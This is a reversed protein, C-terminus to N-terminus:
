LEILMTAWTLGGGFGSILIKDGKKLLGKENMEALAIPVSAGSTNGIRDINTFFKEAPAKLKRAIVDNIRTNAQHLVIYRIDEMATGSKELVTKISEPVKRTAFTFVERGNMDIFESSKPEGKYYPSKNTRYGATLAMGKSGDSHIDECLIGGEESAEMLVGGAGDGFLVCTSRDSWDTIKSLTEGGLVLARKVGGAKIFKDAVSLSYIFGSCAAALDFCFANKCGLAEQVLCATRPTTYDPSVSGLVILDVSEPAWGAKKLLKEAAIICLDSTNQDATLHRTRIGTRSSIWEDSTDVIKALDDNTVTFPPLASEFGIIRSIIM